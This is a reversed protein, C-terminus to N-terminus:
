GLLIVRLTASHLLSLEIPLLVVRIFILSEVLFFKM